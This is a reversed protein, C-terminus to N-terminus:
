AASLEVIFICDFTILSGVSQDFQSLDVMGSLRATGTLGRYVGTGYLVANGASNGGTIHTFSRTPWNRPQVTTRGQIALVGDPLNFYTTGIMGLGGPSLKQDSLTPDLCDTATGVTEGTKLDVLDVDFCWAQVVEGLGTVAPVTDIYMAGKGILNLVLTRSDSPVSGHQNNQDDVTADDVRIAMWRFGTTLNIVTYEGPEVVCAERGECISDYSDSDQVQYWDDGLWHIVFGDVYPGVQIHEWRQGTHLNIVNYQGAAVECSTGGECVPNYDSARQVQYWGDDPWSIVNDEVVPAAESQGVMFVGIMLIICRKLFWNQDLLWSKNLYQGCHLHNNKLNM